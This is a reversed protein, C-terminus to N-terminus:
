AQPSSGCAASGPTLAEPCLRKSGLVPPAVDVINSTQGECCSARMAEEQSVGFTPCVRAGAVGLAASQASVARACLACHESSVASVGPVLSDAPDPRTSGGISAFAIVPVSAATVAALKAVSGRGLLDGYSSM